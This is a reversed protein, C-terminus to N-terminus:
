AVTVIATWTNASDTNIWLRDNVGSGSTVLCLSGLPAILGAANPDQSCFYIGLPSVDSGFYIAPLGGAPTPDNAKIRFTGDYKTVTCEEDLENLTVLDYDGVGTFGVNSRNYIKFTNVTETATVGDYDFFFSKFLLQKSDATYVFATWNLGGGVGGTITINVDIDGTVPDYGAADITGQLYNAPDANDTIVIDAGVTNFLGALKTYLTITQVGVGFTPAGSLVSSSVVDPTSINTNGLINFRENMREDIGVLAYAAFNNAKQHIVANNETFTYINNNNANTINLNVADVDTFENRLFFQSTTGLQFSTYGSLPVQFYYRATNLGKHVIDANQFATFNIQGDFAVYDGFQYDGGNSFKAINEGNANKFLGTITSNDNGEGRTELMASITTSLTNVGVRRTVSNEWINSDGISTNTIWKTVRDQTGTLVNTVIGWVVNGNIDITLSMGPTGPAIYGPEGLVDTVIISGPVSSKEIQKQIKLREM